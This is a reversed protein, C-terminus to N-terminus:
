QSKRLNEVNKPFKFSAILVSEKPLYCVIDIPRDLSGMRKGTMIVALRIEQSVSELFKKAPLSVSSVRYGGTSVPLTSAREWITGRPNRSL